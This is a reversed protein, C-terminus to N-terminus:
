EPSPRELMWGRWRAACRSLVSPKNTPFGRMKTGTGSGVVPTGVPFARLNGAHAHRAAGSTLRNNTNTNNSARGTFFKKAM